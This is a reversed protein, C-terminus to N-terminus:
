RIGRRVKLKERLRSAKEYLKEWESKIALYEEYEEQLLGHEPHGAKYNFISLYEEIKRVREEYQDPFKRKLFAKWDIDGRSDNCTQCAPIANGPVLEGFVTVPIVHDPVIGRNEKTPGQGCYSCLGDFKQLIEDWVDASMTQVPAVIERMGRGVTYNLRRFHQTGKQTRRKNMSVEKFGVYGPGDASSPKHLGSNYFLTM